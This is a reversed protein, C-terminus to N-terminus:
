SMWNSVNQWLASWTSGFYTQFYGWHGPALLELIFFWGLTIPVALWIWKIM